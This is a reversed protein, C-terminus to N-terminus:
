SLEGYHLKVVTYISNQGCSTATISANHYTNYSLTLHASSMTILSITAVQPEVSVNYTVSKEPTWELLITANHAGHEIVSTTVEPRNPYDAILPLSRM